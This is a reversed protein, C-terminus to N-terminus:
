RAKIKEVIIFSSRSTDKAGTYSGGVNRSLQVKWTTKTNLPQAAPSLISNITQSVGVVAHHQDYGYGVLVNATTALRIGFYSVTDCNVVINPRVVLIEGAELCFDFILNTMDFWGSTTMNVDGNLHKKFPIFSTIPIQSTREVSIWNNSLNLTASFSGVSIYNDDDTANAFTSLAMYINSTQNSAGYYFSGLRTGYNTSIGLTVGNISNFGAYAIYLANTDIGTGGVFSSGFWNTGANMTVSLASTISRLTGGIWVYVPNASTPDVQSSSSTSIAVTLNNSAVTVRIFGNILGGNRIRTKLDLIDVYAKVAKASPITDDLASVSSLDADITLDEVNGTGATARGKVTATAVQALKANTVNNDAIKVATVNNDAIKNTTVANNAIKIETVANNDITWTSGGGSTTIDGKDGNPIAVNVNQWSNTSAQYGLIQNDTPSSINVDNLDDLVVTQLLDQLLNQDNVPVTGKLIQENLQEELKPM